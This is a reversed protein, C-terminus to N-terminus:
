AVAAAAVSGVELQEPMLGAGDAIIYHLLNHLVCIPPQTADIDVVKGRYYELLPATERDYTELRRRIVAESAD